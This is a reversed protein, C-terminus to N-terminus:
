YDNAILNKDFLIQLWWAVRNQMVYTKIYVDAYVYKMTHKDTVQSPDMAVCPDFEHKAKLALEAIEFVNSSTSFSPLMIVGDFPFMKRTVPWKHPSNVPRGHIGQVFALSAPSQHKRQDAGSYFTSYVITLSTIQSAMEGM